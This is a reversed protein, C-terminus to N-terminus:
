RPTPNFMNNPHSIEGSYSNGFTKASSSPMIDGDWTNGFTKALPNATIPATTKNTTGHDPKPKATTYPSQGSNLINLDAAQATTQIFAASLSYVALALFTSTKM